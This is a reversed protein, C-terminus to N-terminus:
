ICCVIKDARNREVNLMIDLNKYEGKKGLYDLLDLAFNPPADTRFFRKWLRTTMAIIEATRLQPIQAFPSTQYFPNLIVAAIFIEQDAKSWRREISKIIANCGPLDEPDNMKRYTAVLHGFTLLVTDVRCFSSQTINAAIGLPRLHRVVRNKSQTLPVNLFKSLTYCM